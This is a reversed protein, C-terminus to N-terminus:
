LGPPRFSRHAPAPILGTPRPADGSPFTYFTGTVKKRLTPIVIWPINRWIKGGVGSVGLMPTFAVITTLVGFIVVVGVEHTGRWAAERPDEGARIRRNYPMMAVAGAFSVPIGISVLLALSPRLFLALVAFVLLLGFVGNKGLLNMRGRLYYSQDFWMELRVSDPLTERATKM